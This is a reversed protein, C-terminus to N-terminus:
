EDSNDDFVSVVDQLAKRAADADAHGGDHRVEEELELDADHENETRRQNNRSHVEVRQGVLTSLCCLRCSNIIALPLLFLVDM